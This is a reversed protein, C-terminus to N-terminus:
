PVLEFIEEFDISKEKWVLKSFVTVEADEIYHIGPIVMNSPEEIFSDTFFRSRTKKTVDYRWGDTAWIFKTTYSSKSTSHELNRRILKM